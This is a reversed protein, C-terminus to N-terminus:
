KQGPKPPFYEFMKEIAKRVKGESSGPKSNLSSTAIASWASKNTKPDILNVALTGEANYRGVTSQPGGFAWTADPPGAFVIAELQPSSERLAVVSVQLDGGSSVPKLGKASLQQDISERVAPAVSPDDEVVGSRGLAKVPLWQYTKFSSFDVGKGYQVMRLKQAPAPLVLLCAASVLIIIRM